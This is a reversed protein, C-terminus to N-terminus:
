NPTEPSPPAGWIKKLQKHNANFWQMAILTMSNKFRGDDIWKLATSVDVSLVRIDEHEEDLGFVGGANEADTKACFLFMSESSGGPTVLYHTIPIIDLVKLNAEEVTERRIVAEPTEGEDIIGAVIELMWPSFTKEDFWPSSLAAYAGPRFQEIFVLKELIPDYLLAAAAHGREFIERSMEGSTNGNHLAHRLLYKDLQFYGDWVRTKEVVEVDSAKFKKNSNPNGNSTM